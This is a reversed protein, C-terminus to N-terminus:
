RTRQSPDHARYMAQLIAQRTEAFPITRNQAIENLLLQLLWSNERSLIVTQAADKTAEPRISWIQQGDPEINDTFWDLRRPASEPGPHRTQM